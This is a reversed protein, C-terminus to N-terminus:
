EVKVYFKDECEVVTVSDIVQGDPSILVTRETMGFPTIESIKSVNCAKKLEGWEVEKKIKIYEKANEDAWELLKEDDKIFEPQQAKFGFTGTPLKMSKKKGTIQTKAYPELMSQFFDIQRQNEELVENMWAELQVKRSDVLAKAENIKAQYKAIKSIAWEAEGLNDISFKPKDTGAYEENIFEDLNQALDQM